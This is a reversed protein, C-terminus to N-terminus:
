CAFRGVGVREEDIRELGLADVSKRTTVAPVDGRVRNETLVNDLEGTNEESDEGGEGGRGDYRITRQQISWIGLEARGHLNLMLRSM